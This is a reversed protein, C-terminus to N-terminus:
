ISHELSSEFSALKELVKATKLGPIQTQAFAPSSHDTSLMSLRSLNGDSELLQQCGLSM